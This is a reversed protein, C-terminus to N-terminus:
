QVTGLTPAILPFLTALSCCVAIVGALVSERLWVACKRKRSVTSFPKGGRSPHDFAVVASPTSSVPVSLHGLMTLPLELESCWGDM